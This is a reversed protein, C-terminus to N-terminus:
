IKAKHSVCLELLGTIWKTKKLLLAESTKRRTGLSVQSPCSVSAGFTSIWLSIVFLACLSAVSAEFLKWISCVAEDDSHSCLLPNKM